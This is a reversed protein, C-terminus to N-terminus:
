KGYYPRPELTSFQDNVFYWHNHSLISPSPIQCIVLGLKFSQYRLLPRLRGEFFMGSNSSFFIAVGGAMWRATQWDCM